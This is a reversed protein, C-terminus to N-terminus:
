RVIDAGRLSVVFDSLCPAVCIDRSICAASGESRTRVAARRPADRDCARVKLEPGEDWAGEEFKKEMLDDYLTQAACSAHFAM